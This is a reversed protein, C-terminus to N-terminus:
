SVPLPSPRYSPWHHLRAWVKTLALSNSRSRMSPDPRQNIMMDIVGMLSEDDQGVIGGVTTLIARALPLLDPSWRRWRM